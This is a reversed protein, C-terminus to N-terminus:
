ENLNLMKKVENLEARTVALRQEREAQLHPKDGKKLESEIRWIRHPLTKTALTVLDVISSGALEKKRAHFQFVSHRGLPVGHKKYHNLEEYIQQNEIYALIVQHAIEFCEELNTCDFLKKHSDTYSEWATIKDAALIKLEAPCNASSLFPFENRFRKKDTTRSNEERKQINSSSINVTKQESKQEHYKKVSQFKEKTIGLLHCFAVELLTPSSEPHQKLHRVINKKGTIEYLLSIGSDTDAGRRIWTVAKVRQEKTLNRVSIEM